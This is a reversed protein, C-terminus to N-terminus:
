RGEEKSNELIINSISSVAQELNDVRKKLEEIDNSKQSSQYQQKDRSQKNDRKEEDNYGIEEKIEEPANEIYQSYKQQFKNSMKLEEYIDMANDWQLKSLKCSDKSTKHIDGTTSYNVAFCGGGCFKNDCKRCEESTDDNHFDHFISRRQNYKIGDYVDGLKWEQWQVFRHCPFIDGKHNIGVYKKGAGCPTQMKHQGFHQRFCKSYYGLGVDEEMLISDKFYKNIKKWQKDYEEYDEETFEIFGDVAPTPSVSKFGIEDLLYKVTEYLHPLTEPTYTPRGVRSIGREVCKKMNEEVDKFTGSGDKYKRHRNHVEEIGDISFLASM